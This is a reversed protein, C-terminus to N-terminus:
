RAQSTKLPLRPTVWSIVVILFIILLVIQPTELSFFPSIEVEQEDKRVFDKAQDKGSLTLKLTEVSSDFLSSSRLRLDYTNNEFPLVTGVTIIKDESLGLINSAGITVKAKFLARGNNNKVTLRANTPFGAIVQDSVLSLSPKPTQEFTQDVIEVKVDDIENASLKYAGAPYPFQSSTGYIAFVFHNTDLRNFYDVGGTTSGWTPDVQVWHKKASDYYEAWAHLVTTDVLGEVKTPRLDSNDAYAFGILGRAPIGKARALAVFLDAYDTCIAATPNNLASIAGRRGLKDNNKLRSYDYKLTTSVFDYIASIDKLEKAKKQIQPNESEIFKDSKTFKDLEEKRWDRPIQFPTEDDILKAYGKATIELTKGSKVTYTALYNGSSDQEMKDAPPDLSEYYLAQYETDPPLAITAKAPYLNTNRYRYKLTFKFLQYDGFSAGIGSDTKPQQTFFYNHFGNGASTEDPTPSMRGLQGFSDPVSISLKYSSVNESTVIQPINIEWVRGRKIALSDITYGIQFNSAKNKGVVKQNLKATLVTSNSQTKSTVTITGTSDSGSINSIKTSSITLTYDSAYLNDTLNVLAIKQTVRAQGNDAFVFSIDYGTSFQAAAQAPKILFPTFSASLCVAIVLCSLTKRLSKKM